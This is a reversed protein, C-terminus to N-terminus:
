DILMRVGLWVKKSTQSDNKFTLKITSSAPAYYVFTSTGLFLGEKVESCYWDEFWKVGNFELDYHDDEGYGSCTLTIALIEVDFPPLQFEEVFPGPLAPIDFCKMVNYPQTKTPFNKIKGIEGITDVNNVQQLTGIKNIDDVYQLTQINAIDDVQELQKLNKVKDVVGGANYNVNFNGM